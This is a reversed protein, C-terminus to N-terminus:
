LDCCATSSSTPSAGSRDTVWSSKPEGKPPPADKPKPAPENTPPKPNDKAKPAPEEKPKAAAETRGQGEARGQGQSRDQLDAQGRASADESRTPGQSRQGFDRSVQSGDFRRVGGCVIITPMVRTVTLPRDFGDGQHLVCDDPALQKL